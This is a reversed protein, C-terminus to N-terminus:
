HTSFPLLQVLTILPVLPKALTTMRFIGKLYNGMGGRFVTLGSFLTVTQKEKKSFAQVCTPVQLTSLSHVSFSSSWASFPINLSNTSNFIQSKKRNWLTVSHIVFVFLRSQPSTSLFHLVFAAYMSTPLHPVSFPPDNLLFLASVLGRLAIAVNVQGWYCNRCGKWWHLRVPCGGSVELETNM